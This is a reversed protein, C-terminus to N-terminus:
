SYEVLFWGTDGGESDKIRRYSVNDALSFTSMVKYGNGLPGVWEHVEVNFPLKSTFSFNTDGTHPEHPPNRKTFDSEHGDVVSITPSVLMQFYKGHLAFYDEQATQLDTWFNDFVIDSKVTLEPLTIKKLLNPEIADGKEVFDAEEGLTLINM